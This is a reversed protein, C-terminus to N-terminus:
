CIRPLLEGTLVHVIRTGGVATKMLVKGVPEAVVEGIIAAEEGYKTRRMAALVAEAERAAVVAILKGENAVYLPDLGLMECAAWVGDHLPIADEEISIGVGSQAAIENLSTALGGRTPDRLVHIHSSTELMAKVLHNLPAVDSSVPSEFDLGERQSLVAVGHDGM